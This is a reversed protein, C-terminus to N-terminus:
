LGRAIIEATALAKGAAEPTDGPRFEGDDPPPIPLGKPRVKALLTDIAIKFVEFAYPSEHWDGYYPKVNRAVAGVADTLAHTKPDRSTSGEWAYSAELRRRIEEGIPIRLANADKKLREHLDPPVRFTLHITLRDDRGRERAMALKPKRAM